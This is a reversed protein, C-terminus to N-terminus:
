QLSPDAILKQYRNFGLNNNNSLDTIRLVTLGRYASWRIANDINNWGGDNTVGGSLANEGMIDINREGAGNGVWFVLDQALSYQPAVNDNSMELCTFHLVIDRQTVKTVNNIMTMINAYGRATSDSNIDINTPILGATVEAVRPLSPSGILWHVGPIKIGLSVDRYADSLANNALELMFQGHDILAQNYWAILDLGYQSTLYDQRNFFGDAGGDDTPPRIQQWDTLASGWAQNVKDLTTYKQRAYQQFDEIANDSYSQLYGRGPYVWSDHANYSPYRLEGAPGASINIETIHQAKGAYRQSFAQIFELYQSRAKGDSWLAIVEDSFNNKESKYKLVDPNNPSLKQWIWPPIPIDCTDGVNGGCKHFSFIPVWKLGANIIETSVRDYYDWDFNQDAAGEVKGWWVDTSVSTVGINKAQNLQAKFADWDSILLESMVAPREFPKAYTFLSTSLLFCSVFILFINLWRYTHFANPRNSNM